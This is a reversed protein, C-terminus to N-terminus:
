FFQVKEHRYENAQKPTNSITYTTLANYYYKYIKGRISTEVDHIADTEETWGSLFVWGIFYYRCSGRILPGSKAVAPVGRVPSGELWESFGRCDM